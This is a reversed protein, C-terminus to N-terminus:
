YSYGFRRGFYCGEYSIFILLVMDCAQKFAINLADLADEFHFLESRSRAGNSLKSRLSDDFYLLKMANCLEEVAHHESTPSPLSIGSVMHENVFSVGSHPIKFSIVPTSM